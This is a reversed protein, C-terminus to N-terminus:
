EGRSWPFPYTTPPPVPSEQETAATVAGLIGGLLAANQSKMESLRLSALRAAARVEDIKASGTTGRVPIQLVYNDDLYKLHLARRLGPGLIGIVMDVRDLPLNITGWSAVQLKRDVLADFRKCTIVGGHIEITVPTFWVDMEKGTGIKLLSTVVDLGGGKKVKVKGLDLRILPIQITEKKFPKIGIQFGKSDIFLSVPHDAWMATAFLPNVDKLLSKGGKKSLDLSGKIPESLLLLGNQVTGNAAFQLNDSSLAAKFTGSEMKKIQANVSLELSDGLLSQIKDSQSKPVFLQWMEPSVDKIKGDLSIDSHDLSFGKENFCNDLKGQVDIQALNAGGNTMSKLSFLIKKSGKAVEFFGKLPMLGIQNQEKKTVIKLAESEFDVRIDLKEWPFPGVSKGPAPSPLPYEFRSCSLSIHGNKDLKLDGNKNGALKSIADFRDATILLDCYLPKGKGILNGESLVLNTEFVLDKGEAKLTLSGPESFGQFAFDWKGTLPSDILKGIEKKGALQLFSSVPLSQFSGSSTTLFGEKVKTVSFKGDVETPMEKNKSLLKVSGVLSSAAVDLEVPATLTYPGFSIAGDSFGVNDLQLTAKIAKGFVLAEASEVKVDVDSTFQVNNLPTLSQLLEKKAKLTAVFPKGQEFNLSFTPSSAILSGNSIHGKMLDAFKAQLTTNILLKGNMLNKYLKAAQDFDFVFRGSLDCENAREKNQEITAERIAITGIQPVNHLVIPDITAKGVFDRIQKEQTDFEFRQADLIVHLPATTTIKQEKAILAIKQPSLTVELRCPAMVFKKGDFHFDHQLDVTDTWLHQEGSIEFKKKWDQIEIHSASEIQRGFLTFVVDDDQVLLADIFSLDGNVQIDSTLSSKEKLLGKVSFQADIEFHNNLQALDAVFSGKVEERLDTSEFHSQASLTYEKNTKNDKVALPSLLKLEASFPIKQVGDPELTMKVPLFAMSVQASNALQLHSTAPLFQNVLSPECTWILHAGESFDILGNTLEIKAKGDLKLSKVSIDAVIKCNSLKENLHLALTPGFATLILGKKSPDVLTAIADAIEMPFQEIDLRMECTADGTCDKGEFLNKTAKIAERINDSSASFSLAGIENSRLLQAKVVCTAEKLNHISLHFSLDRLKIESKDKSIVDVQGDEIMLHSSFFPPTSGKADTEKKPSGGKAFIHEISYGGNQEYFTIHPQAIRIHGFDKTHFILGFITDSLNLSGVTVVNREQGDKLSFGDIKIGSLWGLSAKEIALKGDLSRNVKGVIYNVVPKTSVITPAIAVLLVFILFLGLCVKLFRKM